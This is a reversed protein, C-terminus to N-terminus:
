GTVKFAANAPAHAEPIGGLVQQAEHVQYGGAGPLPEDIYRGGLELVAARVVLVLGKGLPAVELHAAAKVVVRQPEDEAHRRVHLLRPVYAYKGFIDRKVVVLRHRFAHHLVQAAGVVVGYVVFAGVPQGKDPARVPVVAKVEVAERRGGPLAELGGRVKLAAHRLGQEYRAHEHAHAVIVGAQAALEAPLLLRVGHGGMLLGHLLRHEPVAPVALPVQAGVVGVPVLHAAIFAFFALYIDFGLAEQHHRAHAYLFAVGLLRQIGHAFVQETLVAHRYVRRGIGSVVQLQALDAGIRGSVLLVAAYEAVVIGPYHQRFRHQAVAVPREVNVPAGARGIDRVLFQM